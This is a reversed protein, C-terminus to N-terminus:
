GKYLFYITIIAFVSAIMDPFVTSSYIIQIINVSLLLGAILAVTRNMYKSVFFYVLSLTALSCLLTWLNIVYPSEGFLRIFIAEPIFVGYRHSQVSYSFFYERNLIRKANVFYVLPDGEPFIPKMAIWCIIHISIIFFLFTGDKKLLLKNENM